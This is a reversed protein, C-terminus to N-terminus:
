YPYTHRLAIDSTFYVSLTAYIQVKIRDFNLFHTLLVKKKVGHWVNCTVRLFLGHQWTLKLPDVWLSVYSRWSTTYSSKTGKSPSSKSTVNKNNILYGSHFHTWCPVGSNFFTTYILWTIRWLTGVWITNEFERNEGQGVAFKGQGVAFKEQALKCLKHSNCVCFQTPLGIWSRSSFNSIKAAFIAIDKVKLILSNVVQAFLIGQTKAFNWFERHKGQCPNKKAIGQKGQATPVRIRYCLM